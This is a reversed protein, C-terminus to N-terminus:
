TILKIFMYFNIQENCQQYVSPNKGKGMIYLALMFLRIALNNEWTTKKIRNKWSPTRITRCGQWCKHKNVKSASLGSERKEAARGMWEQSRCRLMLYDEPCFAYNPNSLLCQKLTNHQSGCEIIFSAVWPLHPTTGSGLAFLKISPCSLLGVWVYCCESRTLM